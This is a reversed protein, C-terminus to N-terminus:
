NLTSNSPRQNSVNHIGYLLLVSVIIFLVSLFIQFNLDFHISDINIYIIFNYLFLISVINLTSNAILDEIPIADHLLSSIYANQVYSKPTLDLIIQFISCVIGIWGVIIGGTRLDVCCCCNDVRLCGM